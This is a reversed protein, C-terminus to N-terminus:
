RKKRHKLEGSVSKGGGRPICIHIYASGSKGKPKITRIKGGSRRCRNFKAPM